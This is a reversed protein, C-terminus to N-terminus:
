GLGTLKDPGIRVITTSGISTGSGAGTGGGTFTHACGVQDGRHDGEPRPPQRAILEDRREDRAAPLPAHHVRDAVVGVPRQRAADAPEVLRM